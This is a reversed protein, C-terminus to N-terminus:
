QAHTRVGCSANATRTDTHAMAEAGCSAEDNRSVVLKLTDACLVSEQKQVCSAEAHRGVVTKIQEAWSSSEGHGGM